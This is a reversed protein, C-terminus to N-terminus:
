VWDQAEFVDTPSSHTIKGSNDIFYIGAKHLEWGALYM